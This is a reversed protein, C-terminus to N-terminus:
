VCFFIFYLLVVFYYIIDVVVFFRCDLCVYKFEVLNIRFDLDGIIIIKLM